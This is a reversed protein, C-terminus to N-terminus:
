NTIDDLKFLLNEPTKRVVLYLLTPLGRSPKWVGDGEGPRGLIALEGVRKKPSMPLKSTLRAPYYVHISLM